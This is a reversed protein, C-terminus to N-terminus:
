ADKDKGNSSYKKTIDTASVYEVEKEEPKINLNESPQNIWEKPTYKKIADKLDMIEIYDFHEGEQGVGLIGGETANVVSGKMQKAMAEHWRKFALLSLNTKVEKKYIDYHTGGPTLTRARTNEIHEHGAYHHSDYEWSLDLGVFVVQQAKLFQMSFHHAATSVNGGTLILSNIGEFEVVYDQDAIIEDGKPIDRNAKVIRTLHFHNFDRDAKAHPTHVFFMQGKWNAVLDPAASPTSVLTTRSTDIGDIMAIMKESGDISVCYEPYIGNQVLFRMAADVCVIVGRPSITKLLHVNKELSPGAAVVFSTLGTLDPNGKSFYARNKLTNERWLDNKGERTVQNTIDGIYDMAMAQETM